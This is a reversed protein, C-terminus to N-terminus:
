TLFIALTFLYLVHSFLPIETELSPNFVDALSVGSLQSIVQGAMQPAVLLIQVGLGLTLGIVIEGAILVAFSVLNTPTQVNAVLQAPTLLLALAFALLARIRMPVELSGVIPATMLLGSVRTLVLTFIVFHNLGLAYLWAM